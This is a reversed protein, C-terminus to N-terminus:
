VRHNVTGSNNHQDQQVWTSIHVRPHTCTTAVDNAHSVERTLYPIVGICYYIVTINWGKPFDSIRGASADLNECVCTLKIIIKRQLFIVHGRQGSDSIYFNVHFRILLFLISVIITM